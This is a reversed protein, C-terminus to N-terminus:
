SKIGKVGEIKAELTFGMSDVRWFELPKDQEDLMFYDGVSTSHLPHVELDNFREAQHGIMDSDLTVEPNHHWPSDITNTLRFAEELDIAKVSGVYMYSTHNRNTYHIISYKM